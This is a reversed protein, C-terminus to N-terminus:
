GGGGSTTASPFDAAGYGALCVQLDYGTLPDNKADVCCQAPDSPAKACVAFPNCPNDVTRDHKGLGVDQNCEPTTGEPDACAVAGFILGALVSALLMAKGFGFSFAAPKMSTKDM